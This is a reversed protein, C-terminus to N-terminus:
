GHLTKQAEAIRSYRGSVPLIVGAPEDSTCTVGLILRVLSRMRCCNAAIGPTLLAVTAPVGGRVPKARVTFKVISPCGGAVRRSSTSEACHYVM